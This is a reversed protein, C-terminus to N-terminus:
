SLLNRFETKVFQHKWPTEFEVQQACTEQANTQLYRYSTEEENAGTNVLLVIFVVGLVLVLLGLVIVVALGLNNSKKASSRYRQAPTPSSVSPQNADVTTTVSPTSPAAAPATPPQPPSANDGLQPFEVDAPRWDDWGERWVLSDASVRGEDIWRRMADGDAPGYQGGSPPRVYWIADPAEAIADKGPTPVPVAVPEAVAEGVPEAVATAAPAAVAVPVQNDDLAALNVDDFATEVNAKDNQQESQEKKSSPIQSETPIMVRGGCHPCIGRKGALFSKVNLKKDCSECYFRIGM